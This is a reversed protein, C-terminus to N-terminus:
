TFFLQDDISVSRWPLSASDRPSTPLQGFVNSSQNRILDLVFYDIITFEIHPTKIPGNELTISGQHSKTSVSVLILLEGCFGCKPGTHAQPQNKVGGVTKRFLPSCYREQILPPGEEPITQTCARRWRHIPVYLAFLYHRVM